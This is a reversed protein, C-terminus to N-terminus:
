NYGTVSSEEQKPKLWNNKENKFLEKGLIAFVISYELAILWVNERFENNSYASYSLFVFFSWVLVFRYTTFVSLILPTALYWPHITTSLFFYASVGILMTTILNQFNNNKRFFSLATIILLFVIPLIKGVTEIINYGKIQFGLWRILYYISANFEFKQFWLAISASFNSILTSSLFPTFTFFTIGTVISSYLLLKGIGTITSNERKFYKFLLPLLLLPLLKVAVSFGMLVASWIWRKQHLLYLSWVLFFIMVGEFHLNGTLEIIIFPNLIYWFVRHVPLNLKKLLKQGFYLTGFDAAIIVLRMTIVSGIISKGGLFTAFVYILQSLPPYNTFNNGSLAGMGQYLQNAQEMPASSTTILNKPLYLYPNWGETIMQGDWIFRYFDQSLNPLSTIFIMRFVLAMGALFWFNNKRLELLKWSLLFLGTYLIMLKQFNARDLDYAFSIYFLAATLTLVLSFKHNKLFKLPM